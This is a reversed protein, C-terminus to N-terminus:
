DRLIKWAISVKTNDDETDNASTTGSATVTASDKDEAGKDETGDKKTDSAELGLQSLKEEVAKEKEDTSDSAAKM